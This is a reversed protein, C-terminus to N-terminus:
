LASRDISIMKMAGLGWGILPVRLLEKKLVFVCYAGKPVYDQQLRAPDFLEELTDAWGGHGFANRYWVGRLSPM